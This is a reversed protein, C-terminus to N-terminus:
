DTSSTIASRKRIERAMRALDISLYELSLAIDEERDAYLGLRYGDWDSEFEFKVDAPIQAKHIIQQYGYLQKHRM